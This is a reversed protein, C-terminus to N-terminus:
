QRTSVDFSASVRETGLTADVTFKKTGWWTGKFTTITFSGKSSGAAITISRPLSAGDALLMPGEATTTAGTMALNVTTSAAAPRLLTLTGVVQGGATPSVFHNARSLALKALWKIEIRPATTPLPTQAAALGSLGSWLVCGLLTMSSNAGRM